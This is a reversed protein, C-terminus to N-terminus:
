GCRRVRDCTPHAHPHAATRGARKLAHVCRVRPPQLFAAVGCVDWLIRVYVRRPPCHAVQWGLDVCRSSMSVDTSDSKPVKTVSDFADPSLAPDTAEASRKRTSDASRKGGGASNRAINVYSSVSEVRIRLFFATQLAVPARFEAAFLRGCLGQMSRRHPPQAARRVSM